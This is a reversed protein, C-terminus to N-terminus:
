KEIFLLLLLGSFVYCIGVLVRIEKGVLFFVQPFNFILVIGALVLGLCILLSITKLINSGM